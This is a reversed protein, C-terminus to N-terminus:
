EAAEKFERANRLEGARTTEKSPIGVVSFSLDAQPTRSSLMRMAHSGCRVERPVIEFRNKMGISIRLSPLLIM